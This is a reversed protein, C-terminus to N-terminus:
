SPLLKLTATGSVTAIDVEMSWTPSPAFQVGVAEAVVRVHPAPPEGGYVRARAISLRGAQRQLDGRREPSWAAPADKGPSAFVLPQRSDRSAELTAIFLGTPL